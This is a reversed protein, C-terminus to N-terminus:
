AELSRREDLEQPEDAARLAKLVEGASERVHRRMADEAGDADGAEILELIRRHEEVSRTLRGPRSLSARVLRGYALQNMLLRYAALAKGNGAGVAILDHFEAVLRAYAEADDERVADASQEVNRRIEAVEDVPGRQALLRAALGELMEKVQFLEVIERRTAEAVFTGVRPVIEVLGEAALHKLAERVPTRSVGFAQSLAVESLVARPPLEGDSIMSRLQGTVRAQLSQAEVPQATLRLTPERKGRAQMAVM